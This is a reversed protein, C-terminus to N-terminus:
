MEDIHEVLVRLVSMFPKVKDKDKSQIISLINTFSSDASSRTGFM